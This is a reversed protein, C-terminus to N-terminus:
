SVLLSTFGVSAIGLDLFRYAVQNKSEYNPTYYINVIRNTENDFLVAYVKCPDSTYNRFKLLCRATTLVKNRAVVCGNCIHRSNIKLTAVFKITGMPLNENSEM